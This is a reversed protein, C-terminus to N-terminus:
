ENEKSWEIVIDRKKIAEVIDPHGLGRLIRFFEEDSKPNYTHKIFMFLTLPNDYFLLDFPFFRDLHRGNYYARKDYYRRDKDVRKFSHACSFNRCVEPRVEYILCKKNLRDHFCCDLFYSDVLGETNKTYLPVPKINHKKIYTKIIKYEEKTIPCWPICCNGCNSCKGNCTYDRADTGFDEPNYQKGFM